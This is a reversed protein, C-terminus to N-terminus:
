LFMLALIGLVNIVVATYSSKSRKMAIAVLHEDEDQLTLQHAEENPKNPCNTAWHGIEDCLYCKDTKENKKQRQKKKKAKKLESKEKKSSDKSVNKRSEKQHAKSQKDKQQHTSKFEIETIRLMKIVHSLEFSGENEVISEKRLMLKYTAFKEPLADLLINALETDGLTGNLQQYEQVLGMYHELLNTMSGNWRVQRLKTSLVVLRTTTEGIVMENLKMWQSTFREENILQIAYKQDLCSVLWAKMLAETRKIETVEEATLADGVVTRPSGSSNFVVEKEYIKRMQENTKYNLEMLYKWTTFDSEKKLVEPKALMKGNSSM